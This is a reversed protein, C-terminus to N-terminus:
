PKTTCIKNQTFWSICWFGLFFEIYFKSTFICHSIVGWFFFGWEDDWEHEYKMGNWWNTHEITSSSSKSFAWWGNMWENMWTCEMWYHLGGKPTSIWWELWGLLGKEVEWKIESVIPHIIIGRIGVSAWPRKRTYHIDDISPVKLWRQM